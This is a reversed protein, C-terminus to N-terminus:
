ISNEQHSRAFAQIAQRAAALGNRRTDRAAIQELNRLQLLAYVTPITMLVGVIVITLILRERLGIGSYEQRDQQRRVPENM